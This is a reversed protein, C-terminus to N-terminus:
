FIFKTLEGKEIVKFGYVLEMMWDPESKIHLQVFNQIPTSDDLEVYENFEINETRGLLNLLASM